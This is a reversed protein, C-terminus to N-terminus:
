RAWTAGMAWRDPVSLPHRTQATVDPEIVGGPTPTALLRRVASVLVVAWLLWLAWIILEGGRIVILAAPPFGVPPPHLAPLGLLKALGSGAM